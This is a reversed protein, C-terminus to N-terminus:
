ALLPEPTQGDIRIARPAYGPLLHERENVSAHIYEGFGAGIQRPTRNRFLRANGGHNGIAPAAPNVPFNERWGDPLILGCSQAHEVIWRFPINSLPRAEPKAWVNGGIDAHAGAFWAQEMRGQWGEAKKWVVPEYATRDEDIALAHFGNRITPGLEDNHFATAMPALRALIPYPLGLARVTDWIGVMEIPVNAHCFMNAFKRGSLTLKATEYHRFAQITKSETAYEQALLGVRGIFGALSRVAYAGRSYGFLMIKDGSRYRSALTAYAALISDNIGKGMAVDLWKTLGMGQVGSDYAYSQDRLPGQDRLLKYLLGANTERGEEFRSLTGDIIFIHTRSPRPTNPQAM